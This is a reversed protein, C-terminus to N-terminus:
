EAAEQTALYASIATINEDTYGRALRHMVTTGTDDTKYRLLAEKLNEAGYGTLSVMAASNASHCGACALALSSSRDTEKTLGSLNVREGSVSTGGCAALGVLGLLSVATSLKPRHM